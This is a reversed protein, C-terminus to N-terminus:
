KNKHHSKLVQLESMMEYNLIQTSNLYFLYGHYFKEQIINKTSIALSKIGKKYTVWGIENITDFTNALRKSNLIINDPDWNEIMISIISKVKDLRLLRKSAEGEFPLNVVCCNMINDTEFVAGADISIGASEEDIHGSWLGLGLRFRSYGKEDLEGKKIGKRILKEISEVNIEIKKNLAEKRSIGGEYWNTFQEDVHYLKSLTKYVKFIVESITESRSGWYGAIRFTDVM